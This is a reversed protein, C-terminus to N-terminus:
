EVPQLTLGACQSVIKGDRVTFTDFAGTTRFASTSADWHILALEGSILEATVDLRTDGPKFLTSFVQGFMARLADKGAVVGADRTLLVADDAYDAMLGDVDGNRWADLHRRVIQRTIDESM